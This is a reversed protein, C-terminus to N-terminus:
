VKKDKLLVYGFVERLLYCIVFLYIFLRRWCTQLVRFSRTRNQHQWKRVWVWPLFRHGWDGRCHGALVGPVGAQNISGSPLLVRWFLFGWTAWEEWRLEATSWGWNVAALLFNQWTPPLVLTKRGLVRCCSFGSFMWVPTIRARTRCM